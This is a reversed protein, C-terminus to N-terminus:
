SGCAGVGLFRALKGAVRGINSLQCEWVVLIQWDMARLARRNRADRLRNGELKAMWYAKRTKPMRARTCSMAAHRHWFCGHVFIAKRQGIIALDPKGPLRAAHLRYRAGLGRVLARVVKEPGTHRPKIRSMLASRQTPTLTDAM